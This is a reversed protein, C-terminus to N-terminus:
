AICCGTCVRGTNDDNKATGFRPTTSQANAFAVIAILFLLSFLKKM